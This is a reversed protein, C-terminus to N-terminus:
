GAAMELRTGFSLQLHLKFLLNSIASVGANCGLHHCKMVKAYSVPRVNQPLQHSWSSAVKILIWARPQKLRHYGLEIRLDKVKSSGDLQGAHFRGHKGKKCRRQDIRDVEGSRFCFAEAQLLIFASEDVLRQHLRFKYSGHRSPFLLALLILFRKLAM